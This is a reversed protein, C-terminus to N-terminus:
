SFSFFFWGFSYLIDFAWLFIQGRVILL